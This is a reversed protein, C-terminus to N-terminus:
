ISYLKILKCNYNKFYAGGGLGNYGETANNTILLSNLSPNSDECYIGGGHYINFINTGSGGTITFGSLLTSTNEGNCFTVVSASDPNSPQGGDIITNSIYITDQTTLFLSAVTINKGDYNINEIYIDPQVLVTDGNTSADIGAQITTYDVLINITEAFAINVFLVVLFTATMCFYEKKEHSGGKM